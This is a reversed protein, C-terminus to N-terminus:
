LEDRKKAGHELLLEKMELFPKVEDPNSDGEEELLQELMDLVTVREKEDGINDILVNPDAGHELLIKVSEAHGGFVHWSLAHMQLPEDEPDEKMHSMLNPDVGHELLLKTVGVEGHIGAVHLCTEGEDSTETAWDAHAALEEKVKEVNGDACFEIFKLFDEDDSVSQVVSGCLVLVITLVAQWRLM